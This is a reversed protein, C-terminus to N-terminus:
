MGKWSNCAPLKVSNATGSVQLRSLKAYCFKMLVSNIRLALQGLQFDERLRSYNSKGDIRISPQDDRWSCLLPTLYGSKWFNRGERNTPGRVRRCGSTQRRGVGACDSKTAVGCPNRLYHVIAWSEAYFLSVHDAENYCPSKGHEILTSIVSASIWLRVAAQFVGFCRKALPKIALYAESTEEDSLAM